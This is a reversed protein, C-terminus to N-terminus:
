VLNFFTLEEKPINGCLKKGHLSSDKLRIQFYEGNGTFLGNEDTDEIVFLRSPSYKELQDFLEKSLM